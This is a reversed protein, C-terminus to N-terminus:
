ILGFKKRYVDEAWDKWYNSCYIASAPYNKLAGDKAIFTTTPINEVKSMQVEQAFCLGSNIVFDPNTRIIDGIFDAPMQPSVKSVRCVRSSVTFGNEVLIRCARKTEKWLDPCFIVTLKSYKMAKAFEIIDKLRPWLIYGKSEMIAANKAMNRTEVDDSYIAEAEIYVEPYVNKPCYNKKQFSGGVCLQQFCSACQIDSM